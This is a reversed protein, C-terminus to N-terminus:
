DQTTIKVITGRYSISSRKNSTVSLTGYGSYGADITMDYTDFDNKIRFEIRFTKKKKNTTLEYTEPKGTIEITGRGHYEPMYSVGFFPLYIDLTDGKVRIFNQNATMDINGGGQPNANRAVFEYNKSEFLKKAEEFKETKSKSRDENMSSINKSSSCAITLFIFVAILNKLRM